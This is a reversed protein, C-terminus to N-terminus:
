SATDKILIEYLSKEFAQYKFNEDRITMYVYADINDNGGLEMSMEFRADKSEYILSGRDPYSFTKEVLKFGQEELYDEVRDVKNVVTESKIRYNLAVNKDPNGCGFLGILGALILGTTIVKKVHKM